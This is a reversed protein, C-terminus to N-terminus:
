YFFVPGWEDKNISQYLKYIIGGFSLLVLSLLFAPFKKFGFYIDLKYGAWAALGITAFMQM